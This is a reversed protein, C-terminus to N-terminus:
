SVRPAGSVAAASASRAAARRYCAPDHPGGIEVLCCAFPSLVDVRRELLEGIHQGGPGIARAHEDPKAPESRLDVRDCARIGDRVLFSSQGFPFANRVDRNRRM